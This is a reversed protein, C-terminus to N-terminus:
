SLNPIVPQRRCAFRWPVPLPIHKPHLAQRASNCIPCIPCRFLERESIERKPTKNLAVPTMMVKMSVHPDGLSSLQDVSQRCWFFVFLPLHRDFSCVSRVTTNSFSSPFVPYCHPQLRLHRLHRTLESFATSRSIHTPYPLKYGPTIKDDLNMYFIIVLPAVVPATKCCAHKPYEFEPWTPTHQGLRSCNTGASSSPGISPPTAAIAWRVQAARSETM